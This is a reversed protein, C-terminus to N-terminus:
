RDYSSYFPKNVQVSADPEGMWRRLPAPWQSGVPLLMFRGAIHTIAGAKLRASVDVNEGKAQESSREGPVLALQSLLTREGTDELDVTLEGGGMLVGAGAANSLVAIDVRRRNGPFYLDERNLHFSGYEDLLNKGPYAAYPGDGLWRFESQTNPAAVAFGAELVEGTIKVPTYQYSVTIVGNGAIGLRYEGRISEEPKGPRPYNGAVTVEVGEATQRADTKLETVEPMLGWVWLDPLRERKLGMDNITPHRGMHPGFESLLTTGDVSVVSLKGSRRDLKLQYGPLGVSIATDSVKLDPTTQALPATLEAWRAGAAAPNVRISREYFSHGQEDVVSVDLSLLDTAAAAPLQVPIAVVETAKPRASLAVSGQQLRTQNQVLSWKLAIGSLTRFDFRNEAHLQLTQPGPQLTFDGDRIQVPSYVKRVQWYDVQPTRDSYVLGDMGFPGASDFYRHEDLWVMLDSDKVASRDAASRLIGQDQFVWIAGGAIRPSRYFTEWLDQVSTGARALGREHAYETFVIPKDLTDGYRQARALPPYHPAYIDLFDPFNKWEKDFYSGITPFTIPRTPDLQKVYKGTNNSLENIPNENGLSWFIVSPRNKDRMVTARARTYLVSQYEPDKLHNRGHTFPVEDDVYLGLEDCLELFRPHPPYHSTRVFNINAARILELDRRMNEETAVRGIPWIDHHDVGRLKIPTGNLKLIGGDTTMQRLGIRDHYHQVTKAGQKLDLELGYLNPTEATWLQPHTINLVTSGRGEPSLALTFRKVANGRADILQGAVNAKATATVDVHLDASGDPKLTTRASYDAIHAQPLAFVTVDRYIGSLAWCDMTDFEYGKARTTVRIAILNDEGDQALADTIDFTVPNFSSAWEGVPKGNVWVTLGYLVGEFRLFVRQGDWSKPVKFSRRYLGTGEKVADEYQPETFGALEWHGPVPIRKWDAVDFAPQYFSEDAGISSSEIYKFTWEGNLVQAGESARVPLVDM